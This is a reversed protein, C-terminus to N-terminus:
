VSLDILLCVSLDIHTHVNLCVFNIMYVFQKEGMNTHM